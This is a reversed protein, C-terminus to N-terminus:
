RGASAASSIRARIGLAIRRANGLVEAAEAAAEQNIKQSQEEALRLTEEFATGL